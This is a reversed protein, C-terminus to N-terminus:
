IKILRATSYYACMNIQGITVNNLEEKSRKIKFFIFDKRRTM